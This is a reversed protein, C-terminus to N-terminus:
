SKGFVAVLRNIRPWNTDKLLFHDGQCLYLSPEKAQFEKWRLLNRTIKWTALTLKGNQVFSHKNGQPDILLDPTPTMLLPYQM